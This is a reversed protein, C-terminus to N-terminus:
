SEARTRPAAPELARMVQEAIADPANVVTDITIGALARYLPDREAFQAELVARADRDIFPRHDDDPAHAAVRAALVDPPAHLYVVLNGRLAKATGPLEVVSAAAAVVEPAPRALADVLAQTELVHLAAAGDTDAIDRASRGARAELAEDNDVFPRGLRRALLRGVTSKGSGM